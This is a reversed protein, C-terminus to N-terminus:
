INGSQTNFQLALDMSYGKTKIGHLSVFINQKTKTKALHSKIHVKAIIRTPNLIVVLAVFFFLFLFFLKSRSSFKEFIPRSGAIRKYDEREPVFDVPFVQIEILFGRNAAV